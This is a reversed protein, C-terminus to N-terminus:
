QKTQVLFTVGEPLKEGYYGPLLEPGRTIERMDVGMAEAVKRLNNPRPQNAGREWREITQQNFGTMESLEATSYGLETRVERLRLM